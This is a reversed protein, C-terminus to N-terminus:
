FTCPSQDLKQTVKLIRINILILEFKITCTYTGSLIISISSKEKDNKHVICAAPYCKSGQNPFHDKSNSHCLSM